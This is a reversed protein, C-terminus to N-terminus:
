IGAARETPMMLTHIRFWGGYSADHDPELTRHTIFRSYGPSANSFEKNRMFWQGSWSLCFIKETLSCSHFLARKWLYYETKKCAHQQAPFWLSYKHTLTTTLKKSLCRLGTHELDCLLGWNVCFWFFWDKVCMINWLLWPNQADELTASGTRKGIPQGDRQPLVVGTEQTRRQRAM